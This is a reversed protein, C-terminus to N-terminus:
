ILGLPGGIAYLGITVTDEFGDTDEAQYGGADLIEQILDIETLEQDPNDTRYAEFVESFEIGLVQPIIDKIAAILEPSLHERSTM